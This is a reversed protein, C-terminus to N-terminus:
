RVLIIQQGFAGAVTGGSALAIGPYNMLRGVIADQGSGGNPCNLYPEKYFNDACTGEVFFGLINVVRIIGNTGNYTGADVAAQYQATDFVAVPVIRASPSQSSNVVGTHYDGSPGDSWTATADQGILQGLPKGPSNHNDGAQAGTRVDVCGAQTNVLTCTTGPPAIAVKDSTCGVINAGYAAGGGNAAANDLDLEMAWGSSLAQGGGPNNLKLVIQYGYDVPNGSADKNTFGTGYSDATPPTYVDGLSPQYQSSQTWPPVNVELWKDAVAWPKLCNTANAAIARATATARTDQSTIGALQAFFTPLANLRAATRYVDAKVCTDTAPLGPTPPCTIIQIDSQVIDPAQGWVGNAQGVKIARAKVNQTTTGDFSLSIAGALATADASNQAQARAAWMIGYDLVFASFLMLGLLAAAVQIIVAGHESRVAM